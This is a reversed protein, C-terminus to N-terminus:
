ETPFPNEPVLEQGMKASGSGSPCVITFSTSAATGSTDTAQAKKLVLPPTLAAAGDDTVTSTIVVGVPHNNDDSCYDGDEGITVTLVNTTSNSITIGAAETDDALAAANPGSGMRAGWTVGASLRTLSRFATLAVGPNGLLAHQDAASTFFGSHNGWLDVTVVITGTAGDAPRVLTAKDMVRTTAATQTNTTTALAISGGDGLACDNMRRTFRAGTANAVAIAAATGANGNDNAGCTRLADMPPEPLINPLIGVRGSAAEKLFVAGKGATM